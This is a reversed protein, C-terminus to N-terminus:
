KGAIPLMICIDKSPESSLVSFAEIYMIYLAYSNTYDFLFMASSTTNLDEFLHSTGDFMEPYLIYTCNNESVNFNWVANSHPLTDWSLDITSNGQNYFATFNSPPYAPALFIIINNPKKISSKKQEINKAIIYYCSIGKRCCLDALFPESIYKINSGFYM